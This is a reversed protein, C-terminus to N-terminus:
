TIELLLIHSTLDARGGHRVLDVRNVELISLSVEAHGNGQKSMESVLQRYGPELSVQGVRCNHSVETIGKGVTELAVLGKFPSHTSYVYVLLNKAILQGLM